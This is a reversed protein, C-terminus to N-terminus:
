LISLCLGRVFVSGWLAGDFLSLSQVYGRFSRRTSDQDSSSRIQKSALVATNKSCPDFAM